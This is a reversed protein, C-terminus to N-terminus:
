VMGPQMGMRAQQAERLMVMHQEAETDMVSAEAAIRAQQVGSQANIQATQIATQQKMQERAMDTQARMQRDAEKAELQQELEQIRQQMQQGIQQVRPDQMPDAPAQGQPAEFQLFRQGNKYGAAGFLEEAIAEAGPSKLANPGLLKAVGGMIGAYAQIAQVLRGARQMPDVSGIGVGVTVTLEQNLLEDTIQDMGFRQFLQAKKAGLALVTIDTEYKQILKVVQRLVPEVWTETFVRLDYEVMANATNSLLAMGGVTENMKRNSQVTSSSFNGALEDLEVNLRDVEQYSSGTVDPPRHWVVDSEPNEMYVVSGPTSKSLAAGDIKKGQRAFYRGNLSLRANDIRQNTLENIEKQMEAVMEAKSTPFARHSELIGFGLAYPREGSFFPVDKLKVPESLLAQDAATFYIYDEYGHKAIVCWVYVIEYDDIPADEEYPDSRDKGERAQRTSSDDMDMQTATKLVGDPVKIWKPMGTKTDEAEMRAKVSCAHMPMIEIVYPSSNIPDLWDATPDIRFRDPPILEICPKDELVEVEEYPVKIPAGDEDIVVAGTEPDTLDREAQYRREEYRWTQKSVCYGYVQTDQQAGMLIRFWPVTKTLRYNLVENLLAASALQMQDEDDQPEVHVVDATSFFAAATAAEGRRVVSRTKPRFIKSRHKYEPSSYRSGKSHRSHFHDLSREWQKRLNADIYETSADYCLRALELWDPMGDPGDPYVESGELKSQPALM